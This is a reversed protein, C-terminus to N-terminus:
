ILSPTVSFESSGILQRGLIMITVLPEYWISRLMILSIQLHEWLASIRFSSATLPFNRRVETLSRRVDHLMFISLDQLKIGTLKVASAIRSCSPSWLIQFISLLRYSPLFFHCNKASQSPVYLKNFFVPQLEFICPFNVSHSANLISDLFYVTFNINIFGPTGFSCCSGISLTSPSVYVTVSFGPINFIYFCM